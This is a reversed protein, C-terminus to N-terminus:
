VEPFRTQIESLVDSYSPFGSQEEALVQSSMQGHESVGVCVCASKSVNFSGALGKRGGKTGENATPSDHSIFIILVTFTLSVADCSTARNSTMFITVDFYIQCYLFIELIYM